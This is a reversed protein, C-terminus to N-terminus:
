PRADPPYGRYGGAAGLRARRTAELESAVERLITRTEASADVLRRMEQLGVGAEHEAAVTSRSLDLMATQLTRNEDRERQWARGMFLLALMLGACLLGAETQLQAAFAELM